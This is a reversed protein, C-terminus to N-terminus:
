AKKCLTRRKLASSVSALVYGGALVAAGIAVHIPKVTFEGKMHMTFYPTDADSSKFETKCDYSKSLELCKCVKCADKLLNKM